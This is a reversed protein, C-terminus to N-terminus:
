ARGCPTSRRRCPRRGGPRRPRGSGCRPTRRPSGGPAGRRRSRPRLPRRPCHFRRHADRTVGREDLPEAADVELHHVGHEAAVPEAAHGLEGRVGGAGVDRDDDRAPTPSRRGWARLGIQGHQAPVGALAALLPRGAHGGLDRDRGAVLHDAVHEGQALRLREGLVRELEQVQGGHGREGLDRDLLGLLLHLLVQAARKELLQAGLGVLEVGVLDHAPRCPQAAVEGAPRDDEAGLEKTKDAFPVTNGLTKNLGVELAHAPAAAGLTATVALLIPLLIRSRM